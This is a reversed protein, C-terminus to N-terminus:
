NHDNTLSSDTFQWSLATKLNAATQRLEKLVQRCGYCVHLGIPLMCEQHGNVLEADLAHNSLINCIIIV